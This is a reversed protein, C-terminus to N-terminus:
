CGGPSHMQDRIKKLEEPTMQNVSETGTNGCDVNWSLASTLMALVGLVFLLNM